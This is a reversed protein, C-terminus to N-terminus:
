IIPATLIFLFLFEGIALTELKKAIEQFQFNCKIDILILFLEQVNISKEWSHSGEANNIVHTKFFVQKSVASTQELVESSKLFVVM